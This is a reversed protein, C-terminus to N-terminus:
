TARVGPLIVVVPERVHHVPVNRPLTSSFSRKVHAGGGRHGSIAIRGTVIAFKLKRTARRDQAQGGQRRPCCGNGVRQSAVGCSAM